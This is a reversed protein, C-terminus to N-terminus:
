SLGLPGRLGEPFVVSNDTVEIIDFSEGDWWLLNPTISNPGAAFEGYAEASLGVILDVLGVSTTDVEDLNVVVLTGRSPLIAIHGLSSPTPFATDTDLVFSTQFFAADPDAGVFIGFGPPILELQADLALTQALALDYAEDFSLGLTDLDAQVAIRVAEPSDVVIAAHLGPAVETWLPEIDAAGVYDNAYLLVRLRSADAVDDAQAAIDGLADFHEAIAAAEQGPEAALTKAVPNVLSFVADDSTVIMGEAVDLTANPLRQEQEVRILEIADCFEEITADDLFWEPLEEVCAPEAATTNPAEFTTVITTPPATTTSAESAATTDSGGATAAEQGGSAGGGEGCAAAVLTLACVLLLSRALRATSASM